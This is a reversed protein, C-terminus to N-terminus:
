SSRPQKLWRPIDDQEHAFTHLAIPRQMPPPAGYDPFEIEPRRRPLALLVVGAMFVVGCTFMALPFVLDAHTCAM